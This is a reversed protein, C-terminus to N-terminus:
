MMMFHFPLQMNSGVPQGDKMAPRWKGETLKMVRCAEEEYADGKPDKVRINEIKGDKSVEFLVRVTHKVEDEKGSTDPYVINEGLFSYLANVGGEFEAERDAVEVSKADGIKDDAKVPSGSSFVAITSIEKVLRASVTFSAAFLGVALAPLAWLTILLSKRSSRTRGIALVRERFGKRNSGFCNAMGLVNRDMATALLLRQYSYPNIGSEIVNSDAQFEHNLKVLRRIKWIFPNYWMFICAVDSFLVDIWHRHEIHSKEHLVIEGSINREEEDDIFIYKGWSFPSIRREHLRCIICDGEDVKESDRILNFLRFYSVIERIVLLAVGLFYILVAPVMYAVWAPASNEVKGDLPGFFSEAVGDLAKSHSLSSTSNGTLSVVLPLLACVGILALLFVRNFRFDTSRGVVLRAVPYLLAVFLSAVLSYSFLAGM